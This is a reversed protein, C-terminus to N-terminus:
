ILKTSRNLLVAIPLEGYSEYNTRLQVHNVGIEVSVVTVSEIWRGDEAPGPVRRFAGGKAALQLSPLLSGSPPKLAWSHREM